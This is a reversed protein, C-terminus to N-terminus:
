LEFLRVAKARWLPCTLLNSPMVHETKGLRVTIVCLEVIHGDDGGGSAVKALDEESHPDKGQLLNQKM